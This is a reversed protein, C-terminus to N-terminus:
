RVAVGEPRAWPPVPTLQEVLYDIVARVKPAMQRTAPYALYISRDDPPNFTELLPVLRGKHLDEAVIFRALRAVGLGALAAQHLAGGFAQFNGRVKLEFPGQPGVFRWGDTSHGRAHIVLCNHHKLDEPVQPTGRAALYAPAACVIWPDSALKRVTLTSDAPLLFRVALDLGQEILDLPGDGMVLQIEVEPYRAFFAPLLPILQREAFAISSGLRVRGRPAAGLSSAESEAAEIDSLIAAARRYLLAGAETVALRRTTRNLLRTGLREELRTIAKSVASPTLRVLRAAGAYSEADVVRVFIAMDRVNEM